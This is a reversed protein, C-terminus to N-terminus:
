RWVSPSYSSTEPEVRVVPMATVVAPSTSRASQAAWSIKWNLAARRVVHAGPVAARKGFPAADLVGSPLKPGSDGLRELDRGFVGGAVDEDVVRRIRRDVHEVLVAVVEGLRAVRFQAAFPDVEGLHDGEILGGAVKVRGPEARRRLDEFRDDHGVDADAGGRIDAGRGGREVAVDIRRASFTPTRNGSTAEFVDRCEVGGGVGFDFGELPRLAHGARRGDRGVVGGVSTLALTVPSVGPVSYRNRRTTALESPSFM